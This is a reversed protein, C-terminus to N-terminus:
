HLYHRFKSLLLNLKGEEVHLTFRIEDLIEQDKASQSLETLHEIQLLQNSLAEQFETISVSQNMQIVM